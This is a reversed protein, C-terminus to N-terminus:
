AGSGFAVGHAKRKHDNLRTQAEDKNQEATKASPDPNHILRLYELAARELQAELNRCATCTSM